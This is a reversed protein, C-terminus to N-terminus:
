QGLAPKSIWRHTLERADAQTGVTVHEIGFARALMWGIQRAEDRREPDPEIIIFGRCVRSMEEKNKKLWLARHRSDEYSENSRFQDYVIVFPTGNRILSVTEVEWQKAYGPKAGDSRFLVMPHHSIDHVLFNKANLHM